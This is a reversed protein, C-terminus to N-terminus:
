VWETDEGDMIILTVWIFVSRVQGVRGITHIVGLTVGLMMIAEM